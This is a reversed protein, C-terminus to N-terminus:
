WEFITKVKKLSAYPYFKEEKQIELLVGEQNAEKIVAKFEEKSETKVQVEEGISLKFNRPNKLTREIGPSSIELTYKGSTPDYVDLLPSLLESVEQCKDLTTNGDKALISIRLIDIDNEKLFAIDYLYCELSEIVNEIKEEVEKSM